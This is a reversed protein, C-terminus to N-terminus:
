RWTERQPLKRNKFGKTLTWRIHSPWFHSSARRASGGSICVSGVDLGSNQLLQLDEPFSSPLEEGGEKAVLSKWGELASISDIRPWLNSYSPCYCAWLKKSLCRLYNQVNIAWDTYRQAIPQVIPTRPNSERFNKEEGGRGSRSQPRGLRRDLPYWPSNGQLYVAPAHLQGSVEM